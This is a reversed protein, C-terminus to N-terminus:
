RSLEVPVAWRAGVARDVDGEGVVGQDSAARTSKSPTHMNGCLASIVSSTDLAGQEVRARPKDGRTRSDAIQALM